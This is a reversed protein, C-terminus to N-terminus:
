VPPCDLCINSVYLSKISISILSLLSSLGPLSTSTSLGIRNLCHYFHKHPSPRIVIADVPARSASEKDNWLHEARARNRPANAPGACM